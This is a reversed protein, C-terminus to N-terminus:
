SIADLRRKPTFTPHGSHERKIFIFVGMESVRTVHQRKLSAGGQYQYYFPCISWHDAFIYRQMVADTVESGSHAQKTRYTGRLVVNALFLLPGQVNYDVLKFIGRLDRAALRPERVGDYNIIGPNFNGDVAAQRMTDLFDGHLWTVDPYLRRNTEVIQESQDVGIFQHPQILGAQTLQGYEGKAKHLGSEDKTYHAGCLTWHQRKTPLQKGFFIQYPLLVSDARSEIKRPTDWHPNDIYNTYGRPM